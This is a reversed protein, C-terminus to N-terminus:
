IVFSNDPIPNSRGANSISGIASFLTYCDEAMPEIDIATRLLSIGKAIRENNSNIM